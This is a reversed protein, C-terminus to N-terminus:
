LRARLFEVVRRFAQHVPHDPPAADGAKTFELTLTAHRPSQSKSAGGLEEIELNDGFAERLRDFRARPCM